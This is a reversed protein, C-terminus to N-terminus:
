KKINKKDEVLGTNLDPKDSVNDAVKKEGEAQAKVHTLFPLKSKIRNYVTTILYVGISLVFFSIWFWGVSDFVRGWILIDIPLTISFGRFINKIAIPNKVATTPYFVTLNSTAGALDAGQIKEERAHVAFLANGNFTYQGVWADKNEFIFLTYEHHLLQISAKENADNTFNIATSNYNSVRLGTKNIEVLAGLSESNEIILQNNTTWHAIPSDSWLFYMGTILFLVPFILFLPKLQMTSMELMRPMFAEYKKSVEEIKKDNKSDTAAKLEKQLNKSEEQIAKVKAKDTFKSMILRSIGLYALSMVCVLYVPDIANLFNFM